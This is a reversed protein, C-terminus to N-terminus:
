TKPQQWLLLLGAVLTACTIICITNIQQQLAQQIACQLHYYFPYLAGAVYLWRSLNGKKWIALQCAAYSVIHLLHSWVPETSFPKYLGIIHVAIAVTFFVRLAFDFIQKPM